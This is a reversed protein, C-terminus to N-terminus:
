MKKANQNRFDKDGNNKPVAISSMKKCIKSLKSNPHNTLKKSFSNGNLDIKKNSNIKLENKHMMTLAKSNTFKDKMVELVFAMIIM